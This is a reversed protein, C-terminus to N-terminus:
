RNTSLLRKGGSETQWKQRGFRCEAVPPILVITCRRPVKRRDRNGPCGVRPPPHHALRCVLSLDLLLITIFYFVGCLAITALSYRGPLNQEVLLYPQQLTGLGHPIHPGAVRHTTPTFIIAFHGCAVNGGMCQPRAKCTEALWSHGNKTCKKIGWEPPDPHFTSNHFNLSIHEGRGPGTDTSCSTTLTDGGM